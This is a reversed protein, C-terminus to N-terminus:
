RQEWAVDLGVEVRVDFGCNSRCPPLVLPNYCLLEESTCFPPLTCGAACVPLVAISFLQVVCTCVMVEPFSEERHSEKWTM